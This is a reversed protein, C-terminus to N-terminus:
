NSEKIKSKLRCLEYGSPAFIKRNHTFSLKKPFRNAIALGFKVYFGKQEPQRLKLKYLFGCSVGLNCCLVTRPETVCIQVKHATEVNESTPKDLNSDPM